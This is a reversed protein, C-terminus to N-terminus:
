SLELASTASFFIAIRHTGSIFAVSCLDLFERGAKRSIGIGCRRAPHFSLYHDNIAIGM